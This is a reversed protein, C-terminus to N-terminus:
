LDFLKYVFIGSENCKQGSKNGGIFLYGDKSIFIASTSTNSNIVINGEFMDNRKNYILCGKEANNELLYDGATKIVTPKRDPDTNITSQFSKPIEKLCYKIDDINSIDFKLIGSHDYISGMLKNDCAYTTYIYPYEIECDFTYANKYMHVDSYVFDKLDVEKLISISKIDSIDIITIGLLYNCIVCYKKGKHKYIRCGQYEKYESSRYNYCLIPNKPNTIDYINFGNHMNVLLINDLIVLNNCKSDLNLTKIIELSELDLINIKGNIYTKKDLDEYDVYMDDIDISIKATCTKLGIGINAFSSNVTQNTAILLQWKGSEKTRTYMEIKNKQVVLKIQTWMNRPLNSGSLIENDYTRVGLDFNDNNPSLIIGIEKGLCDYIVPMTIKESCTDVKIWFSIFINDTSKDIGRLLKMDAENGNSQINLSHLGLNPSPTSLESVKIDGHSEFFDFEGLDYAMVNDLINKDTKLSNWDVYCYDGQSNIYENKLASNADEYSEHIDGAFGCGGNLTEIYISNKFRGNIFLCKYLYVRKIESTKIKTLRLKKFFSNFIYNNSFESDGVSSNLELNYIINKENSLTNWDVICSDGKSNYYTDRLATLAENRSNYSTGSLAVSITNTNNNLLISNKYKGDKYIAKYIYARTISKYDVSRISLKKFFHNFLSDNSYPATNTRSYFTKIGNEFKIRMEPSDHEQLNGKSCREICFMYDGYISASKGVLSFVNTHLKNERELKPVCIDSIDYKRIGFSGISFLKSGEVILSNIHGRDDSDISSIYQPHITRGSLEINCSEKDYGIFFISDVLSSPIYKQENSHSIVMYRQAIMININLCNLLSVIMIMKIVAYIDRLGNNCLLKGSVVM